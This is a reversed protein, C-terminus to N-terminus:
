QLEGYDDLGHVNSEADSMRSKCACDYVRSAASPMKTWVSRSMGSLLAFYCDLYAEAMKTATFTMARQQAREALAMRTPEDLAIRHAARILADRDETGVYLATDVWIERLSEINSLVIACGAGAAELPALGFPEYRAMHLFVAARKMWLDMQNRSLVGLHRLGPSLRHALEPDLDGAASETSEGRAGALYTPWPLNRAVSEILTLNKAADWFRGAALFFPEKAPIEPCGHAHHIGNAIVISLGESGYELSLMKQMWRSPTVVLDARDLGARVRERYIDYRAPAAIGHVARWWSCVCSHAVVVTPAMWDLTAHTYGNLHIIDPRTQQEIELLWKGASDVDSWPDDMWELRWSSQFVRIGPIQALASQQSPSPRDGMTAVLVEVGRSSLERALNVVYGFVGGVTDTTM